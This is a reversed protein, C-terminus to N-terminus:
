YSKGNAYAIRGVGTYTRCRKMRIYGDDRVSISKKQRIREVAIEMDPMLYPDHFDSRTPNLFVRIEEDDVIGRNVLVTALLEPVDFKRVIEDIKEEDLEKYKWKKRM